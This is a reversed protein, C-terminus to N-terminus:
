CQHEVVLDIYVMYTYTTKVCGSDLYGAAMGELQRPYNLVRSENSRSMAEEPTLLLFPCIPVM